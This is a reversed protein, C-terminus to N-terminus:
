PQVSFGHFLGLHHLISVKYCLAKFYEISYKIQCGLFLDIKRISSNTKELKLVEDIIM